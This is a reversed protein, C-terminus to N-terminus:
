NPQQKLIEQAEHEATMCLMAKDRWFVSQKLLDWPAVGLYKAAQIHGYWNPCHYDSAIGKAQM